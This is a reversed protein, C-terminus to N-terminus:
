SQKNDVLYLDTNVILNLFMKLMRIGVIKNFKILINFKLNQNKTGDFMLYKLCDINKHYFMSLEVDIAEYM